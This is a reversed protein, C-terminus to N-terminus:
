LFATLFGLSIWFILGGAFVQGMPFVLAAIGNNSGSALTVHRAAISSVAVLGTLAATGLGMVLVAIAGALKIDLQWAIVLLFIAGTCPRVAISAILAVTERMTVVEAVEDATPGHSHCGCAHEHHAHSAHAPKASSVAARIGRWILIFGILGIAAYSTPALIDEALTTLQRASTELFYFGCYVLLVAWAAQALSSIVSITVLKRTSVASGVGVAGLLYKGHGPGLAHVFGYAGTAALLAAYASADGSNLASAARAMQNQFGRQAEIIWHSLGSFDATAYVLLSAAFVLCLILALRM